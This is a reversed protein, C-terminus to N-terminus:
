CRRHDAVPEKPHALVCSGRDISAYMAHARSVQLYQWMGYTTTLDRLGIWPKYRPMDLMGFYTTKFDLLALYALIAHSSM